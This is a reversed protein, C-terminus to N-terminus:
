IFFCLCVAQWLHWKVYMKLSWIKARLLFYCTHLIKPSPSQMKYYCHAENSFSTERIYLSQIRQPTCKASSLLLLNPWAKWHEDVVSRINHQNNELFFIAIIWGPCHIPLPHFILSDLSWELSLYRIRKKKREDELHKRLSLRRYYFFHICAATGGGGNLVSTLFTWFFVQPNIVCFYVNIQQTLIQDFCRAHSQTFPLQLMTWSNLTTNM